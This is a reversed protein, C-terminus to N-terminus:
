RFLREYFGLLKEEEAQWNLVRSCVECNKRLTAYLDKDQLLLNVAIIVEAASCANVLVAVKYKNNLAKYAPFSICVQPVGASIYDFFKNSLSYYYSLGKNELLNFGITAGRTLQQLKHPEVFGMFQVKNQLQLKSVLTRLSASLDGEGAIKLKADIGPM